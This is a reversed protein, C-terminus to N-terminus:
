TLPPFLALPISRTQVRMPPLVPTLRLQTDVFGGAPEPRPSVTGLVPLSFIPRCPSLFPPWFFREGLGLTAGKLRLPPDGGGCYAADVAARDVQGAANRPLSDAFEVLKPKKYSAIRERCHEIFDQASHNA